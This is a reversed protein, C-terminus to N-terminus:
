GARETLVDAITALKGDVDRAAQLIEASVASTTELAAITETNAAIGAAAVLTDAAYRQISRAARWTRHLWYVAMPVFVVLTVILTIWWVLHPASM